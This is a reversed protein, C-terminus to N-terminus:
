LQRVIAEMEASDFARVTEVRVNGLSKVALTAAAVVRDDASEAILLVDIDGAQPWYLGKVQIGRREFEMSVDRSRSVTDKVTRIGQETWKALMIYTAM